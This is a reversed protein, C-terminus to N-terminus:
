TNRSSLWNNQFLEETYIVVCCVWYKEVPGEEGMSDGISVTNPLNQEVFKDETPWLHSITTAISNLWTVM